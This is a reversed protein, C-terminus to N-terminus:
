RRGPPRSSPAGAARGRRVELLLRESPSSSRWCFSPSSAWRRCKTSGATGSTAARIRMPPSSVSWFCWFHYGTLALVLALKAHMWGMQLFGPYTAILALGFAWTLAGGIHTMIMLKREMVKFTERTAEDETSAHYVFIRPLYFLGAFWTVMFVVHFAKFWLM